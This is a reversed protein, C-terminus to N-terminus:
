YNELEKELCAHCLPVIEYHTLIFPPRPMTAGCKDCITVDERKANEQSM